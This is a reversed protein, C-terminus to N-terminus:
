RIMKTSTPPSLHVASNVAANDSIECYGVDAFWQALFGLIHEQLM